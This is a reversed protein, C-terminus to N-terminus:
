RGPCSVPERTELDRHVIGADHAALLGQAVDRALRAAEKASLRARQRLQDSLDSGELREMAIYPTEAELGGLELVKVVNPSELSAALQAERLFRRVSDASQLLEPQLLKVAAPAASATHTAEYVEGMAGRGLVKGLRFSGLVRDTYRGVGGARVARDLQQRAEHLLAERQALSRVVRDHQEVAKLTARRSARGIVFTALLIAEVLTLIM